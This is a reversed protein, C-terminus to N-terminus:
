TNCKGGIGKSKSYQMLSIKWLLVRQTEGDHVSLRLTEGLLDVTRYWYRRERKQWFCGNHWWRLFQGFLLLIWDKRCSWDKVISPPSVHAKKTVTSEPNNNDAPSNNSDMIDNACELLTNFLSLKTNSRTWSLWLGFIHMSVLRCPQRLFWYNRANKKQKRREKRCCVGQFCCSLTM